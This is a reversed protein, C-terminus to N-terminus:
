KGICFSTFIEQLLEDTPNQGLIASMEVHALRLEEALLDFDSQRLYTMCSVLYTQAATLHSLHRSRALYVDQSQESQIFDDEINDKILEIGTNRLASIYIETTKNAQVAPSAGKIDIKNFVIVHNNINYKKLFDIDEQEIGKAHDVVYFLRDARTITQLSRAIGEKEIEDDSQRLGATDVLTIVKNNINLEYEICDRTTGAKGSVISANERLMCNIISSKGSNPRGIFAYVRRHNLLKGERSNLILTNLMSMVQDLRNSIKSISLEPIDEDEPFNIISEIESRISLVKSLINDVEEKFKGHLSNQAAKVAHIDSAAILDSIAEADTLSIKNNLYARQTFEGPKAHSIGSDCLVDLISNMIVSNGHSIIEIVDEGTYSNPALYFIVICNDLLINDKKIDTLIATRDSLEKTFLHCLLQKLNDGSVRIVGLASNGHPTAIACIANNKM